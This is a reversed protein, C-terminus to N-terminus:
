RNRAASAFLAILLLLVTLVIYQLYTTVRGQQLPRLATAAAKLRDWAPRVVGRAIRDEPDTRFSTPTRRVPPEVSSGFASLIPAGFSSGTYQMRASPRAYGCGWTATQAPTRGGVLATRVAAVLAVVSALAAGLATVGLGGPRLDTDAAAATWAPVPLVRAVVRAAPGLVIVPALGLVGCAAALALMPVLLGPGHELADPAGASRRLGLFVVGFVRSFCAAALAAILGVGAAGFVAVQVPGRTMGTRLLAQLVVWESVFGNLPPLGVIAVSGVLFALATLPMRRGLGGLEDLVRTGTARVVAGAGLFLLSKFVAHNLTHLLAGTLGLVAIVPEHYSIGLAGVGMGLLIIGINEVSSYALVRKLDHQALAWLVGLVGSVLGLGLLTWGWWAPLVGLLSMVRLLGYIGMKLMVGSLVASIHSPAAAHAGPLWFHVPVVGAKIGFGLLALLLIVAGTAPLGASAAALSRFTLDTGPARWALFMAFLALTGVHTLVLYVLGARAVESREGEHVILLYASVAMVEWAVLFLVAAQALVVVMMSALLLSLGLHASFVPRHAREAALYTAGYVAAAAGVGAILLLFWASLADVAFIWPGGPLSPEWAFPPRSGGMLTSVAPAAALGCGAVLLVRFLSDAVRPLRQFFAAAVGGGLILGIGWAALSV